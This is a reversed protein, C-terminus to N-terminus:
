GCKRNRILYCGKNMALKHHIHPDFCNLAAIKHEAPASAARTDPLVRTSGPDPFSGFVVTRAKSSSPQVTKRVSVCSRALSRCSCSEPRVRIGHHAEAPPESPARRAPSTLTPLPSTSPIAGSSAHHPTGSVDIPFGGPSGFLGLLECQSSDARHQNAHGRNSSTINFYRGCNINFYTMILFRAM